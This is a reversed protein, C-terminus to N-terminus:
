TFFPHSLIDEIEIRKEPDKELLARLLKVEKRDLEYKSYHIPKEKIRKFINEKESADFPYSGTLLTFLVVGIGWIDISENYGNGALMEPATYRVTGLSQSFIDDSNTKIGCLGFDTLKIKYDHDILINELKIDRHVIGQQHCYMVAEVLQKMIFKVQAKSPLVTKFFKSCDKGPIYELVLFITESDEFTGKLQIINPHKLKKLVKIETRTRESRDKGKKIKFACKIAYKRKTKKHEALVVSSYGGKGVTSLINFEDMGNFRAGKIKKTEPTISM